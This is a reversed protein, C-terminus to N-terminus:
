VSVEGFFVYLHCIFLHFSAWCQKNNSFHLDFSCHPIMECWDSHGNDFFDLFLLHQLLLLSFPIGFRRWEQQSYLNICVRHPVTHLNRLFFFFVLFLVVWSPYSGAIGSSPMYVSFVVIWFSVYASYLVLRSTWQHIFLSNTTCIYM